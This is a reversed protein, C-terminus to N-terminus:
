VHFALKRELSTVAYGFQILCLPFPKLIKFSNKKKNQKTKTKTKQKKNKKNKQELMERFKNALIVNKFYKQKSMQAKCIYTEQQSPFKTFSHFNKM